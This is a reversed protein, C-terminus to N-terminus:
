IVEKTVVINGRYSTYILDNPRYISCRKICYKDAIIEEFKNFDDINIIELTLMRKLQILTAYYNEANKRHDKTM